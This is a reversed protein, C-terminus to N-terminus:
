DLRVVSIIEGSYDELWDTAREPMILKNTGDTELRVSGNFATCFINEPLIFNERYTRLSQKHPHNFKNSKGASIFVFEPKVNAIFDASSSSKSGHHPAKLVTAKIDRDCLLDELQKEADATFLMSFDGFILKGVVSQNNVNDFRFLKNPALVIFKVGGGLDLIDGDQLASFKVDATRYDRYLPSNSKFGNDAIEDVPFNNLVARVGGIHDAHAHTLIIKELREIGCAHLLEVLQKRTKVDGTDILINQEPTEILFADGQSVDLMTIFLRGDPAYAACTFNFVLVAVFMIVAFFKKM